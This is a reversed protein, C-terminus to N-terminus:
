EGTKTCRSERSIISGIDLTWLHICLIITELEGLYGLRKDGVHGGCSGLMCMCM